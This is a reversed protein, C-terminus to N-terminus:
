RKPAVGSGFLESELIALRQQLRAIDDLLMQHRDETRQRWEYFQQQLGPASPASAPSGQSCGDMAPRNYPVEADIIAGMGRPSYSAEDRPRDIRPGIAKEVASDIMKGLDFVNVVTDLPGRLTVQRAEGPKLTVARRRAAKKAVAKKAM